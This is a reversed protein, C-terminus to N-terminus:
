DPSIPTRLSKLVEILQNKCAKLDKSNWRENKVPNGM